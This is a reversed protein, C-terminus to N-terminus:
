RSSTPEISPSASAVARRYSSHRLLACAALLSGLLWFAGPEPTEALIQAESQTLARDYLVVNDMLGAYGLNGEAFGLTLPANPDPISANGTVSGVSAGDLYFSYTTGSKALTFQNWGSSPLAVTSSAAYGLISGNTHFGFGGPNTYNYDVFWKNQVSPGEDQGLFVVQNQSAGNFNFWFGVSFDGSGFNYAANDAITVSATSLDFASGFLGGTYSGPFSGNNATASSDFANGNAAWFGILGNFLIDAQAHPALIGIALICALPLTRKM